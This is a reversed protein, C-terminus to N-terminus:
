EKCNPRLRLILSFLVELVPLSQNKKKSFCGVNELITLKTPNKFFTQFLIHPRQDFIFRCDIQSNNKLLFLIFCLFAVFFVM